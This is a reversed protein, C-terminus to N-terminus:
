SVAPGSIDPVASAESGAIDSIAVPYNIAVGSQRQGGYYRASRGRNDAVGFEDAFIRENRSKPLANVADIDLGIWRSLSSQGPQSWDGPVRVGEPFGEVRATSSQLTLFINIFNRTCPQHRGMGTKGTNM